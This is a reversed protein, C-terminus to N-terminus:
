DAQKIDEAAKIGAAEGIVEPSMPAPTEKASVLALLAPVALAIARQAAETQKGEPAKKNATKTAADLGQAVKKSQAETLAIGSNGFKIERIRGFFAGVLILVAGITLAAIVLTEAFETETVTKKGATEVTFTQKAALVGDDTSLGLWLLSGAVLMLGLLVILVAIARQGRSLEEDGSPNDSNNQDETL